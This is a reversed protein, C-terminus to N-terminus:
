GMSSLLQQVDPRKLPETLREIYAEINLANVDQLEENITQRLSVKVHPLFMDAADYDGWLTVGLEELYALSKVILWVWDPLTMGKINVLEYILEATLTTTGHQMLRMTTQGGEVPMRRDMWNKALEHVEETLSDRDEVKMGLRKMSAPDLFRTFVDELMDIDRYYLLSAFLDLAWKKGEDPLDDIMGFDCVFVKWGPDDETPERAYLNGLHPDGHILGWGLIMEGWFAATAWFAHLAREEPYQPIKWQVIDWLKDPDIDLLNDVRHYNKILEMVIMKSTTYDWHVQAIKITQSYIPHNGVLEHFKEQTRAELFFDIERQLSKKFSSTFIGLDFHRLAPIRQLISCALDVIIVTDLTVIGELHPRQLKLAVEGGNRLRAAHVQALSAAAIPKDEVSSFVDDISYQHGLERTIIKRIESPSIPPLKDQMLQFEDRLFPPMEPRMSMIQGLKIFTPGLQTVLGRLLGGVITKGTPVGRSVNEHAQRILEDLEARNAVQGLTKVGLSAEGVVLSSRMEERPELIKALDKYGSPIPVSKLIAIRTWIILLPARFLLFRMAVFAIEGIRLMVLIIRYTYSFSWLAPHYYKAVM